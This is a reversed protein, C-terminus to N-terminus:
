AHQLAHPNLSCGGPGCMPLNMMHYVQSAKSGAQPVQASASQHQHRLSQQQQDGSGASCLVLAADVASAATHCRQQGGLASPLAAEAHGVKAPSSPM